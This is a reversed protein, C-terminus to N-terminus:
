ARRKRFQQPRQKRKMARSEKMLLVPNNPDGGAARNACVLCTRVDETVEGDPGVVVIRRHLTRRSCTPCRDLHEVTTMVATIM